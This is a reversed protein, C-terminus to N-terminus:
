KERAPPHLSSVWEQFWMLQHSAGGAVAELQEDSLEGDNAAAAKGLASHVTSATFYLGSEAALMVLADILAQRGVSGTARQRLGADQQLRALFRALDAEEIMARDIPDAAAGRESLLAQFVRDTLKRRPESRDVAASFEALLREARVWGAASAACTSCTALHYVMTKLSRNGLGEDWGQELLQLAEICTIPRMHRTLLM